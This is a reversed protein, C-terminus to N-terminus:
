RVGALQGNAATALAQFNATFTRQDGALLSSTSATIIPRNSLPNGSADVGEFSVTFAGADPNGALLLGGSSANNWVDVEIVKITPRWDILHSSFKLDPAACGSLLILAVCVLSKPLAM